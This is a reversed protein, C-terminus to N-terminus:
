TLLVTTEDHPLLAIDATGLTATLVAPFDRSTNGDSLTLTGSRFGDPAADSDRWHAHLGLSRFSELVDSLVAGTADGAQEIQPMHEVYQFVTSLQVSALRRLPIAPCPR